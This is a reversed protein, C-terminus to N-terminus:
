GADAVLRVVPTLPAGTRTPLVAARRVVLSTHLAAITSEAGRNENRGGRELGDFGAGTAEDLMVTGSDNVGHFWAWCSALGERWRPDEELTLARACAAAIAAV